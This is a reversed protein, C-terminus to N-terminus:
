DLRSADDARSAVEFEEFVVLMDDSFKLGVAKLENSFFEKHVKRWYALTKDGEGEKFAHKDSILNFPVIEVNVTRIVCVPNDLSDLIVSYEDKQPLEEGALDYLVYASATATKHGTLVLEALHDANMGFSWAEYQCDNINNERTFREWLEKATM